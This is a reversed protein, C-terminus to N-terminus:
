KKRRLLALSGLGLLAMTAPEPVVDFRANDVYFKVNGVYGYDVFKLILKMVGRTGDIQDRWSRYDWEATMTIDQGPNGYKAAPEGIQKAALEWWQGSGPNLLLGVSPSTTWGVSTDMVWDAQYVTIDIKFVDNNFFLDKAGYGEVDIMANEAWWTMGSGEILMSMSLETVGVTQGPTLTAGANNTVWGELTGSEWGNLQDEAFAASTLALVFCLVVLKKCM